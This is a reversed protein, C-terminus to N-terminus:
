VCAPNTCVPGQPVFKLPIKISICVNKNFSINSFTTQSIAIEIFPIQIEWM